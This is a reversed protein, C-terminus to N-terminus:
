NNSVAKFGAGILHQGDPLTNTFFDVSPIESVHQFIGQGAAPFDPHPVDIGAGFLDSQSESVAFTNLNRHDGSFQLATIVSQQDFQIFNPSVNGSFANSQMDLGAGNIWGLNFKKGLRGGPEVVFLNNWLHLNEGNLEIYPDSGSTVLYTNNYIFIDRSLIRKPVAFDSVFITKGPYRSPESEPRPINIRRTGDGVSVNYRWIVNKNKGLIETGYGENDFSFNYQVLVNENAFDVHMGASDNHGRSGIAINHQAVINKSRFFWAGSGRNVSLKPEVLAGSRIFENHELLGNWVGNILVCSGGTDECRNNIIRVDVDYDLNTDTIGKIKSPKHRLAIGFRATHRIFNDHIFVDRTNVAHRKSYAPLTEFRIGTVSTQNFSKKAKIPYIDEVLLHHFEFGRLVRRGTNKVLVGYANVDAINPLSKRRFNRINLHSIEIHDQDVILIAALASGRKGEAGDIIPLEGEGYRTFHIVTTENGSEDIELQGNFVDGSKFHVTDGAHLKEKQVRALSAWPQALSLGDNRDNGMSSSVYYNKQAFSLSSMVSLLTILLLNKM